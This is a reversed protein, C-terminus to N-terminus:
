YNMHSQFKKEADGDESPDFDPDSDHPDSDRDSDHDTDHDSSYESDTPVSSDNSSYSGSNDVISTNNTRAQNVSLNSTIDFIGHINQREPNSNKCIKRKAVLTKCSKVLRKLKIRISETGNIQVHTGRYINQIQKIITSIKYNESVTRSFNFYM